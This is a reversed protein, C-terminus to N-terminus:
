WIFSPVFVKESALRLFAAQQSKDLLDYACCYCSTSHVCRKKCLATIVSVVLNRRSENYSAKTLLLSRNSPTSLGPGRLFVHSFNKFSVPSLQLKQTIIWATNLNLNESVSIFKESLHSFFFRPQTFTNKGLFVSQSQMIREQWGGLFVQHYWQSSPREFNRFLLCHAIFIEEQRNRLPAGSHGNAACLPASIVLFMRPTCNTEFIAQATNCAFAM